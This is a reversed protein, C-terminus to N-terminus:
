SVPGTSSIRADLVPRKWYYDVFDSGKAAKDPADGTATVFDRFATRLEALCSPLDGDTVPIDADAIKALQAPAYVRGGFLRAAAVMSLHFRLNTREPATTSAAESQLFTDIAKQAKAVWLYISLPTSSSFIKSYDEDRKLLSSPRARSNNPQSLAMSMMAQALLPISVIKEPTKGINSYYNKRRDYYWGKPEFYAEIQRQVDDTARLSAVPVSTQRNTARIVQDRTHSDTTVLIRVLVSRDFAPHTDPL